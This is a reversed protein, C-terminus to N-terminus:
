QAGKKRAKNLPAIYALALRLSEELAVAEAAPLLGFGKDDCNEEIWKTYDKRDLVLATIRAEQEAAAAAERQEKSAGGHGKLRGRKPKPNEHLEAQKFEAFLQRASKGEIIKHVKDCLAQSEAPVEAPPLLLLKGGHSIRFADRITSKAEKCISETLSMHGQVCRIFNEPKRDQPCISALWILFQGRKLEFDKTYLAYVGFAVVRPLANQAESFLRLFEASTEAQDATRLKPVKIPAVPVLEATKIKSM